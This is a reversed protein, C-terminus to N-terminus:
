KAAKGCFRETMATVQARSANGQPNLSVSGDANESGNLIGVGVAWAMADTAWASTRGSDTFRSMNGKTSVDYGKMGAYNYLM